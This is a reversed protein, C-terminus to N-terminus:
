ENESEETSCPCMFYVTDLSIGSAIKEVDKPTVSLIQKAAEHPSDFLGALLRGLYWSEISEPSDDIERYSNLVSRVASNFEEDTINGNKIEDLQALIEKKATEKNSVEIGATVIM